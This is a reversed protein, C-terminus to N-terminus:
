INNFLKIHTTEYQIKTVKPITTCITTPINTHQLRRLTIINKANIQEKEIIQIIHKEFEFYKNQPSNYVSILTIDKTNYEINILLSDITEKSMYEIRNIKIDKYIYAIIEHHPNITKRQDAIVIIFNPIVYNANKILNVYNQNM